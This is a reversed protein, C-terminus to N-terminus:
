RRHALRHCTPCLMVVNARIDPGGAAVPIIHHMELVRDEGCIRCKGEDELAMRRLGSRNRSEQLEKWVAGNASQLVRAAGYCERSCYGLMEQGKEPEDEGVMRAAMYWGSSQKTAGCLLCVKVDIDAPFKSHSM